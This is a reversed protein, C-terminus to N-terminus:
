TTEAFLFMAKFEGKTTELTVTVGNCTRLLEALMGKMMIQPPEASAKCNDMNLRACANGIVINVFEAVADMVMEDIAANKQQMIYDAVALTLEEPLVLAYTFPADGTVKQSFVYVAGEPEECRVVVSTVKIIQKTYHLFLDITTRLLTSILKREPVDALTEDLEDKDPRCERRYEEFLRNLEVLSLAGKQVLAEGFFVWKESKTKSLEGLQEYSLINNKLAIEMFKRDSKRHEDDLTRLQDETLRGQQVALACLPLNISKQYTVAELLADRTIAGKELLFQGFFRAPM